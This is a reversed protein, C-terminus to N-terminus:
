EISPLFDLRGLWCVHTASRQYSGALRGALATSSTAPRSVLFTCVTREVASSSGVFRISTSAGARLFNVM